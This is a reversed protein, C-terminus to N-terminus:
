KFKTEWKGREGMNGEKKMGIEKGRERWGKREREGGGERV